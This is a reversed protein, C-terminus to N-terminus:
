ARYYPALVTDFYSIKSPPLFGKLGGVYFAFCDAYDDWPNRKAYFRPFGARPDYFWEGVVEPVGEESIIIRKGGLFPEKSWGSLTTWPAAESANHQLDDFGHGMEHYLTHEFRDLTRGSADQFVQPDTINQTNLVLLNDVYYGHNPYYERSEGQDKFGLNKIGCAEVLAVPLRELTDGLKVAQVPDCDTVQIGYRGQLNALLQALMGEM